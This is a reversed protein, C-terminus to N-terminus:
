CLPVPSVDGEVAHDEDYDHDSPSLADEFHIGGEGEEQNVVTVEVTHDTLSPTVHGIGHFNHDIVPKLKHTVFADWKQLLPQLDPDNVFKVRLYGHPMTDLAGEFSPTNSIELTPSISNFQGFEPDVHKEEQPAHESNNSDINELAVSAGQGILMLNGMASSHRSTNKTALSLITQLM